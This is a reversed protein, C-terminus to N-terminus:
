PEMTAHSQVIPHHFAQVFTPVVVGVIDNWREMMGDNWRGNWCEMMGDIGM